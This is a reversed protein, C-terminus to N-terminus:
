EANAARSLVRRENVKWFLLLFLAIWALREFPNELIVGPLDLDAFPADNAKAMAAGLLLSIDRVGFLCAVSALSLSVAQAWRNRRPAVFLLGGYILATAAHWYASGSVSIFFMQPSLSHRLFDTVDTVNLSTVTLHTVAIGLMGLCSATLIEPDRGRLAAVHDPLFALCLFGAFLLALTAFIGPAGLGLVLVGYLPLALPPFLVTLLFFRAM